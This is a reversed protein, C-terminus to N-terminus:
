AQRYAFLTFVAAVQEYLRSFSNPPTAEAAEAALETQQETSKAAVLLELDNNRHHPVATGLGINWGVNLADMSTKNM